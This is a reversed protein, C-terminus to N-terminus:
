INKTKLLEEIEHNEFGRQLLFRKLKIKKEAADGDLKKYKERALQNLIDRYKEPPIKNLAKEIISEDVKKDKLAYKIKKRGWHNQNLKSKVFLEAFREEDIFKENILEDIIIEQEGTQQLGWEQMKRKVDSVCREQYACYRMARSLAQQKSISKKQKM